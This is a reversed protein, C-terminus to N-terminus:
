KEIIFDHLPPWTFNKAEPLPRTKNQVGFLVFRRGGPRLNQVKGLSLGVHDNCDSTRIIKCKFNAEEHLVTYM